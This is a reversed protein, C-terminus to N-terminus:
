CFGKGNWAGASEEMDHSPIPIRDNEATEAKLRYSM